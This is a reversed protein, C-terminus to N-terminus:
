EMGGTPDIGEPVCFNAICDFGFPCTSATECQMACVDGICMEEEPCGTVQCSTGCLGLAGSISSFGQTSVYDALDVGLDQCTQPSTCSEDDGIGCLGTCTGNFCATYGFEICLATSAVTCPVQCVGSICSEGVSCDENVGCSYRFNPPPLRDTFCNTGALCLVTGTFFAIFARM